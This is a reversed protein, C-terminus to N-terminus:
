QKKPRGPKKVPDESINKNDSDSKDQDNVIDIIELAANAITSAVNLLKAPTDLWGIKYLERAEDDCVIKAEEIAHYVWSKGINNSM